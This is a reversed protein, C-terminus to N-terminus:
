RVINDILIGNFSISSIIYKLGRNSIYETIDNLYDKEIALVLVKKKLYYGILYRKLQDIIREVTDYNFFTKTFSRSLILFNQLDPYSLLEKLYNDATVYQKVGYERLMSATYYRGLTVTVIRISPDYPLKVIEGIGPPGPKVRAEFGGYYMAIVDGLGTAEEVEAIHAISAAKEITTRIGYLITIGISAALALAASLGYGAGLLADTYARVIVPKGYYRFVREVTPVHTIKDNLYLVPRDSKMIDAVLHSSINIGAGLSGTTLPDRTYVPKWFGTIHLPVRIRVREM